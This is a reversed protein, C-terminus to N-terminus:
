IVAAAVHLITHFPCFHFHSETPFSNTTLLSILLTQPCPSSCHPHLSTSPNSLTRQFTDWCVQRHVPHPLCPFPPTLIVWLNRAQAVPHITVVKLSLSFVTPPAPQLPSLFLECKPVLQLLRHSKDTSSHLLRNLRHKCVWFLPNSRSTILILTSNVIVPIFPDGYVLLVGLFALM